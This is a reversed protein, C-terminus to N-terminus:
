KERAFQSFVRSKVLLFNTKKKLQEFQTLYPILSGESRGAGIVYQAAWTSQNGFIFEIRYGMYLWYQKTRYSKSELQFLSFTNCFNNDLDTQRIYVVSRAPGSGIDNGM